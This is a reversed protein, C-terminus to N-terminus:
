KIIVLYMAAIQPGGILVYHHEKTKVEWHEIVANPNKGVSLITQRDPIEFYQYGGEAEPDEFYLRDLVYFFKHEYYTLVPFQFNGDVIM